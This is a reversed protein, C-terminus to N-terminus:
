SGEGDGRWAEAMLRRGGLGSGRLSEGLGGRRAGPAGRSGRAGARSSFSPSCRLLGGSLTGPTVSSPSKGDPGGGVPASGGPGGRFASGPLGPRLERSHPATSGPKTSPGGVQNQRAPSLPPSVAPGEAQKYLRPSLPM